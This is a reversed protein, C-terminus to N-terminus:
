CPTPPGITLSPECHNNLVVGAVAPATAAAAIGLTTALLLVTRRVFTFM